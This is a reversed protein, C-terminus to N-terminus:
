IIRVLKNVQAIKNSEKLELYAEKSLNTKNLNNAMSEKALEQRRAKIAAMAEPSDLDFLRDYYKSPKVIQALGKKNTLIIEDAEYIKDKNNEYYDRAIGPNRSMRVFEPAVGIKKYFEKADPGKVKKMVYRAVYAASNWTVGGVSVQGKGWIDEISKSLYIKDGANNSFFYEKDEIPLNFAIIHYHPRFTNTGYEGCAYFRINDHNFHYKYYRRLDKMFKTLHEPVLTGVETLEGTNRDVGKNIEINDNNYTLTLMYNNDYQKAELMCRTAWQRSYDLRCGICNGCPVEQYETIWKDHYVRRGDRPHMRLVKSSTIEYKPKGSENIGIQFAHLPHFCAM